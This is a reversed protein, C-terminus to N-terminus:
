APLSALRQPNNRDLWGDCEAAFWRGYGEVVQAIESPAASPEVALKYVLALDGAREPYNLAIFDRQLDPDESYVGEHPMVLAFGATLLYRGIIRAQAKVDEDRAALTVAASAQALRERVGVIWANAAPASLRQPAILRTLDRGALCLSNVAIRFRPQSFADGEPFVDRWTHLALEPSGAAPWRARIAGSAQELWAPGVATATMRLVGFGEIPGPRGRTAAGTLYVSHLAAGFRTRFAESIARAVRRALPALRGRDAANEVRGFRDM